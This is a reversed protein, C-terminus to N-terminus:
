TEISEIQNRTVRLNDNTTKYSTVFYNFPVAWKYSKFNYIMFFNSFWRSILKM